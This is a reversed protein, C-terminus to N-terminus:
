LMVALAVSVAPFVLAADLAKLMVISVLPGLAGDIVAIVVSVPDEDVSRIVLSVVNTNLPVASALLVTVTLRVPTPTIPVAAVSLLPM